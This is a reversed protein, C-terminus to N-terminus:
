RGFPSRGFRRRIALMSAGLARSVRRVVSPADSANPAERRVAGARAIPAGPEADVGPARVHATTAVAAHGNVPVGNAPDARDRHRGNQLPSPGPHAAGDIPDTADGEPRELGKPPGLIERLLIAQRLARRSAFADRIAHRVGTPREASSPARTVRRRAASSAGSEFRAAQPSRDM